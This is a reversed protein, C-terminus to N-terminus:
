RGRVSFTIQQLECPTWRAELFEFSPLFSVPLNWANPLASPPKNAAPAPKSTSDAPAPPTSMSDLPKPPYTILAQTCFPASLLLYSPKLSGAHVLPVARAFPLSRATLLLVPSM